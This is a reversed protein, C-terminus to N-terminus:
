PGGDVGGDAGGDPLVVPPAVYPPPDFEGTRRGTYGTELTLVAGVLVPGFACGGAWGFFIKGDKIGDVKAGPPVVLKTVPVLACDVGGDALRGPPQGGDALLGADPVGADLSCARGAMTRPEMTTEEREGVRSFRGGALSIDLAACAQNAAGEIGLGLLYRDDDNHNVLGGVAEAKQGVPLTHKTNNIVELKQLDLNSKALDPQDISVKGWFQESPCKVEPKACFATLDLTTPNGNIVGFDVVNGYGTATVERVAGGVNLKLKLQNDYTIDYNGSVDREEPTSSSGGGCSGVIAAAVVGVGILKM